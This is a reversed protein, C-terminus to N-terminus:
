IIHYDTSIMKSVTNIHIYPVICSEDNDHRNTPHFLDLNIQSKVLDTIRKNDHDICKFGLPTFRGPLSCM